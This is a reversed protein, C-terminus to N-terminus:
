QHILPVGWPLMAGLLLLDLERATSGAWGGGSRPSSALGLFGLSLKALGVEPWRFADAFAPVPMSGLTEPLTSLPCGLGM